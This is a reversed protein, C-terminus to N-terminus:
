ILVSPDHEMNRITVFAVEIFWKQMKIHMKHKNVRTKEKKTVKIISMRVFKCLRRM